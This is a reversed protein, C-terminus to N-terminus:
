DFHLSQEHFVLWAEVWSGQLYKLFFYYYTVEIYLFVIQSFNKATKLLCFILSIFLSRELRKFLDIKFDLSFKPPSFINAFKHFQRGGLTYPLPKKNWILLALCCLFAYHFCRTLLLILSIHVTTKSHNYSIMSHFVVTLRVYVLLWTNRLIGFSLCIGFM